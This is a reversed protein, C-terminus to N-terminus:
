NVLNQDMVNKKKM